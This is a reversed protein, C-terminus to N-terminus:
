YYPKGVMKKPIVKGVAVETNNRVVFTLKCSQARCILEHGGDKYHQPKAHEDAKDMVKLLWDATKEDFVLKGSISLTGERDKPYIVKGEMEFPFTCERNVCHADDFAELTVMKEDKTKFAERLERVDARSLNVQIEADVVPPPSACSVLLFCVSLKLSVRIFHAM